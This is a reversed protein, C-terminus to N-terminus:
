RRVFLIGGVMGALLGVALIVYFWRSSLFSRAPPRPPPGLMAAAMALVKRQMAQAMADAPDATLRDRYRRGAAALAGTAACHKLFVLHRPEEDWSSLVERWIAEAAEDLPRVMEASAPDWRAYILGCRPCADASAKRAAGCKPCTAAADSM